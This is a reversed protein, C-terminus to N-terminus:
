AWRSPLRGLELPAPKPVEFSRAKFQSAHQMRPYPIKYHLALEM